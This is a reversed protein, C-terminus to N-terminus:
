NLVRKQRQLESLGVLFIFRKDKSFSLWESVKFIMQIVEMFVLKIYTM